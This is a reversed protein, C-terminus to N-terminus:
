NLIIHLKLILLNVKHRVTSISQHFMVQFGNRSLVPVCLMHFPTEQRTDAPQPEENNQGTPLGPLKM